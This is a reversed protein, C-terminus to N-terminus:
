PRRRQKTPPRAGLDAGDGVFCCEGAPCGPTGGCVNHEFCCMRNGCEVPWQGCTLDVGDPTLIAPTACGIAGVVLALALLRM